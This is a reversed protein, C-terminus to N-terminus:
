EFPIEDDEPEARFYDDSMEVCSFLEMVKATLGDVLQLDYELPQFGKQSLQEQIVWRRRKDMLNLLDEYELGAARLRDIAQFLIEANKSLQEPEAGDKSSSFYVKELSIKNKGGLVVTHEVRTLPEELEAEKSKDYIKCYGNKNRKGFYRTNDFAAKRKRSQFIQVEDLPRRIDIALDYKVLYADSPFKRVFELLELFLPNDAWKNPNLEIKMVPMIPTRTMKSVGNKVERMFGEYGLYLTIGDDLHVFDKAFYYKRCGSMNIKEFYRKSKGSLERCKDLILDCVSTGIENFNYEVVVNDISYINNYADFGCQWYKLM